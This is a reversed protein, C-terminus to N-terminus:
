AARGRGLAAFGHEVVKRMLSPLPEDGLRDLTCWYGEGSAASQPVKAGLVALELRFHTFVHVIGGPLVRWEARLPAQAMAESIDWEEGRWDTSPIEAMGGLLGREPRRRLLLASDERLAWFAVGRRVPKAAARTKVPLREPDGAARAACRMHWPCALCRPRRATCVTAGLDMLAQVFDGPHDQPVLDRALARLLPKAETIPQDIGHVRALVREANGDVAAAPRGFAIAAIAGATYAGIGPLARLAEESQPFRGYHERTVALACRHLNRARAYYGLGAWATLVDELPAAALDQVRPWRRVFDQFYRGVAAVTTQQLMIESLWVRYPDPREGPAARWPLSRRNRDYWALLSATADHQKMRLPLSVM